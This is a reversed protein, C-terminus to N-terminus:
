GCEIVENKLQHLRQMRGERCVGQSPVALSEVSLVCCQALVEVLGASHFVQLRKDPNGREGRHTM